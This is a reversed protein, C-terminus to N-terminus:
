EANSRQALDLTVSVKFEVWVKRYQIDLQETLLSVQVHGELDGRDMWDRLDDKVAEALARADRM